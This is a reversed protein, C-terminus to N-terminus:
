YPLLEDDTLTIDNDIDDWSLQPHFYIKLKKIADYIEKGEKTAKVNIIANNGQKSLKIIYLISKHLISKLVKIDDAIHYLLSPIKM